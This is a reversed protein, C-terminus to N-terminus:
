GAYSPEYALGGLGEIKKKMIISWVCITQEELNLNSCVKKPLWIEKLYGESDTVELLITGELQGQKTINLVNDFVILFSSALRSYPETKVRDNTITDSTVTFSADAETVEAIIVEALESISTIEKNSHMAEYELYNSMIEAQIYNFENDSM